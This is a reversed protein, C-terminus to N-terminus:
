GSTLVVGVQEVQVPCELGHARRWLYRRLLLRRARGQKRVVGWSFGAGLACVVSGIVLQTKGSSAQGKPSHKHAVAQAIREAEDADLGRAVLADRIRDPPDSARLSNTAFAYLRKLDDESRAM